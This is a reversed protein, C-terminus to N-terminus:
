GRTRIGRMSGTRARGYQDEKQFKDEERVEFVNEIMKENLCSYLKHLFFSTILVKFM